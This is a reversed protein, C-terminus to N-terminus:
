AEHLLLFVGGQGDPRVTHATYEVGRITVTADTDTEPDSTLEDLTLFVAPGQTTVGPQGAPDVEVHAADFIGDVEVADGVGPTYTVPEGLTERALRDAAALTDRFGV